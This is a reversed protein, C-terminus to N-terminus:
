NEPPKRSYHVIKAETASDQFDGLWFGFFLIRTLPLSERIKKPVVVEREPAVGLSQRGSHLPSVWIDAADESTSSETLDIPRKRKPRFYMGVAFALNFLIWGFLIYFVTAVYKEEKAFRDYPSIPVLRFHYIGPRIVAYLKM